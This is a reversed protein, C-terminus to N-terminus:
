PIYRLKLTLTHTYHAKGLRRKQKLKLLKRVNDEEKCKYDKGLM